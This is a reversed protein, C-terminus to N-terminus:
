PAKETKTTIQFLKNTSKIECSGFASTLKESIELFPRNDMTTTPTTTTATM